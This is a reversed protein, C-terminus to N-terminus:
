PEFCGLFGICSPRQAWSGKFLLGRRAEFMWGNQGAVRAWVVWCFGFAAGLLLGQVRVTLCELACLWIFRLIPPFIGQSSYNRSLHIFGLGKKPNM